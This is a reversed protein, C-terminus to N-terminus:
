FNITQILCERKTDRIYNRIAPEDDSLIDFAENELGNNNWIPHFTLCRKSPQFQMRYGELNPQNTLNDQIQPILEELCLIIDSSWLEFDCMYKNSYFLMRNYGRSVSHYVISKYHRSEPETLTVDDEKLIKRVEEWDIDSLIVESRSTYRKATFVDFDVDNYLGLVMESIDSSLGDGYFNYYALRRNHVVAGIAILENICPHCCGREFHEIFDHFLLRGSNVSFVDGDFAERLHELVLGGEGLPCDDKNQYTILTEMM